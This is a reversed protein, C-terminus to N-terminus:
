FARERGLKFAVEDTYNRGFMVSLILLRVEVIFTKVCLRNKLKNNVRELSPTLFQTVDMRANKFNIVYQASM